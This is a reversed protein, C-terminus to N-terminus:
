RGGIDKFDDFHREASFQSRWGGSGMLWGALEGMGKATLAASNGSTSAIVLDLKDNDIADLLAFLTEDVVDPLLYKIASRIEETKLVESWREGSLGRVNGAVLEDCARIAKDRVMRM